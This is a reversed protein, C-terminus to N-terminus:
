TSRPRASRASRWAPTPSRAETSGSGGGLRRRDGLRRRAARGERPRQRRGVAATHPGRDPDGRRQVATMFPGVHFEDMAVTREGDSGPDGREAKVASCVSSLDEAADAQCLSGGITGRNRVVPDAIVQEADGFIPFHQALLDSELLEVHRTLAGIAIEDGDERIYSLEALDNIDVLYEPNALRLKMMPLLSHGGAIVRAEPGHERWRRSRARRREDRARVRVSRPDASMRDGERRAQGNPLRKRPDGIEARPEYQVPSDTGIVPSRPLVARGGRSPRRPVPGLALRKRLGPRADRPREPEHGRDAGRPGAARAHANGEHLGRIDAAGEHSDPFNRLRAAAGPYLGDVIGVADEIGAKKVLLGELLDVGADLNHNITKVVDGVPASKEIIGVM